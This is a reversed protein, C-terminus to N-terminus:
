PQSAEKRAKRRRNVGAIMGSLGTGFLLLTAPEPVPSYVQGHLTTDGLALPLTSNLLSYVTTGQLPTFSGSTTLFHVSLTNTTPSLTGSLGALFFISSQNIQPNLQLVTFLLQADSPLTAGSGTFSVRILGFDTLVTQGSGLALAVTGNQSQATNRGFVSITVTDAGSGYTYSSHSLGGVVNGLGVGADTRFTIPDALASKGAGGLMILAVALLFTRKLLTAM